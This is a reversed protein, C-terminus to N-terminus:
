MEWIFLKESMAAVEAQAAKLQSRLSGVAEGVNSDVEIRLGVVEDAM